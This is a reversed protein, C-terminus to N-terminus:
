KSLIRIQIKAGFNLKKFAETGQVKPGRFIWKLIFILSKQQIKVKTQSATSKKRRSNKRGNKRWPPDLNWNAVKRRTLWFFNQYILGRFKVLGTLLRGPNAILTKSCRAACCKSNIQTSNHDVFNMKHQIPTWDFFNKDLPSWDLAVILDTCFSRKAKSTFKCM